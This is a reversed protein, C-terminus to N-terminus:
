RPRDALGPRDPPTAGPNKPTPAAPPPTGNTGAPNPSPSPGAPARSSGTAADAAPAPTAPTPRAARTTPSPTSSTAVRPRRPLLDPVHVPPRPGPGPPAAPRRAPLRQDPLPPRLRPHARRRVPRDAAPRRAPDTDLDGTQGPTSNGTARRPAPDRSPAGARAPAPTDRHHHHHGTRAPRWPRASGRAAPTAAQPAALRPRAIGHGTAYGHEDTVTIEWRSHASRAAAAALQRALAPDLPGLLPSDGAREARHQLTALPVTVEALPVTAAPPWRPAQPAERNVRIVATM